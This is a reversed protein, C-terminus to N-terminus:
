WADPMSHDGNIDISHGLGWRRFFKHYRLLLLRLQFLKDSMDSLELWVDAMPIDPDADAMEHDQGQEPETEPEDDWYQSYEAQEPERWETRM